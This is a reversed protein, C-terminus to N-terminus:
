HVFATSICFFIIFFSLKSSSYIVLSTVHKSFYALFYLVWASLHFSFLSLKCPNKSKALVRIKGFKDMEVSLDPEVKMKKPLYIGPQCPSDFLRM